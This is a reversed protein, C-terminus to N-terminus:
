HGVVTLWELERPSLPPDLTKGYNLSRDYSARQWVLDFVDQLAVRADTDGRKLPIPIAPLRNALTWSYVDCKPRTNSRSVFAYYDGPPLQSKLPVRLGARLLDIEVLHTSSSLCENRKFLYLNRGDSNARKNAPSLLEIVTVVEMSERDRITLRTEQHEGAIDLLECVTATAAHGEDFMASGSLGFTPGHDHAVIAVDARLLTDPQDGVHEVYIRREVRVLYEPGLDPSVAESLATIMRSHFDEWEQQELFPNMGPFPSKM